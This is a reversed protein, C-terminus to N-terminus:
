WLVAGTCVAGVALGDDFIATNEQAGSNAPCARPNPVPRCPNTRRRLPGFGRNPPIPAANWSRSTSELRVM